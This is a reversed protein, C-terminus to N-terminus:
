GWFGAVAETQGLGGIAGKWEGVKLFALCKPTM